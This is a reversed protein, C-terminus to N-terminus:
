ITNYFLDKIKAENAGPLADIACSDLVATINVKILSTIQDAGNIFKKTYLFDSFDTGKIFNKIDSKESYFEDYIAFFNNIIDQSSGDKLSSSTIKNITDFIIHKLYCTKISEFVDKQLFDLLRNIKYDREEKKDQLFVKYLLFRINKESTSTDINKGYERALTEIDLFSLRYLNPYLSKIESSIQDNKFNREVKLKHEKILMKERNSIEKYKKLSSVSNQDIKILGKKLINIVADNVLSKYFDDGILVKDSNVSFPIFNYVFSGTYLLAANDIQDRVATKEALLNYWLTFGYVRKTSDPSISIYPIVFKSGLFAAAAKQDKLLDEVTTDVTIDDSNVVPQVDSVFIADISDLANHIADGYKEDFEFIVEYNEKESQILDIADYVSYQFNSINEIIAEAKSYTKHRLNSIDSNEINTINVSSLDNLSIRLDVIEEKIDVLYDLFYYADVNQRVSEIYEWSYICDFAHQSAQSLVLSIGESFQISSSNIERIISSLQTYIEKSKFSSGKTLRNFAKLRHVYYTFSSNYPNEDEKLSGCLSDISNELNLFFVGNEKVAAKISQFKENDFESYNADSLATLLKSMQFINDKTNNQNVLLLSQAVNNIIKIDNLARKVYLECFVLSFLTEYLSVYKKMMANFSASADRRKENVIDFLEQFIKRESSSNITLNTSSFNNLQSSKELLKSRLNLFVENNNGM